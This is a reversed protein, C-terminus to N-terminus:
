RGSVALIGGEAVFRDYPVIEQRRVVMLRPYRMVDGNADFATPGAAGDFDDIAALADRLVDPKWRDAARFATLAIRLADYGHAAWSDPDEGYRQRYREVFRSV